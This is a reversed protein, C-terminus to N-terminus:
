YKPTHNEYAVVWRASSVSRLRVCYYLFKIFKVDVGEVQHWGGCFGQRQALEAHRLARQQQRQM